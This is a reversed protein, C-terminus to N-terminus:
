PKYNDLVARIYKKQEESLTSFKRALVTALDADQRSAKALSVVVQQRAQNALADLTQSQTKAEPLANGLKEVFDDPVRKRGNEIASLFATSINMKQAVEFLTLGALQRIKHLADGFETAM